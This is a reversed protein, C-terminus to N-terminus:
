DAGEAQDRLWHDGEDPTVRRGAESWASRPPRRTPADRRTKIARGRRIARLAAGIAIAAIFGMCVGAVLVFLLVAKRAAVPDGQAILSLPWAGTV